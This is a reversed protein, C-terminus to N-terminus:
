TTRLAPAHGAEHALLWRKIELGGAYGGLGGGAAVVRHCPILIAVALDLAPLEPPRGRFYARLAARAAELHEHEATSLAPRPAAAEGLSVARVGRDTAEVTIPGVPSRLRAIATM